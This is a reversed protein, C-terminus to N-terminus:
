RWPKSLVNYYNLEHSRFKQQFITKKEQARTLKTALKINYRHCWKRVTAIAFGTEEAVEDYSREKVHFEYMVEIAARGYLDYVISEFNGGYQNAGAM